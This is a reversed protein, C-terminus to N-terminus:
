FYVHHWRFSAFKNFVKDFFISVQSIKEFKEDIIPSNKNLFDIKIFILALNFSTQFYKSLRFSILFGRPVSKRTQAFFWNLNSIKRFIKFKVCSFRIPFQNYGMKQGLNWLSQWKICLLFIVGNKELLKEPKTTIKGAGRWGGEPAM